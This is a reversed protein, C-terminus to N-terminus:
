RGARRVGHRPSQQAEEETQRQTQDPDVGEGPLTAEGEADRLQQVADVDDRDGDPRNATPSVNQTAERMRWSGSWIMGTLPVTQIVRM